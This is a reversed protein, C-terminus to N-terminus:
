LTRAGDTHPASDLPFAESVLRPLVDLIRVMYEISMDDLGEQEKLRQIDKRAAKFGLDGRLISCFHYLLNESSYNYEEIM